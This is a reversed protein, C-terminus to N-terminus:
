VHARGIESFNECKFLNKITSPLIKTDPNLIIVKSYKSKKIGFNVGKAFGKNKKLEFLKIDNKYKKIEEVTKDKSNNDIVLIEKKTNLPWNKQLSTLCDDIFNESNYTLVIISYANNQNDNSM